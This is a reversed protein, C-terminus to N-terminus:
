SSSRVRLQLRDESRSRVAPMKQPWRHPCDVLLMVDEVWGAGDGFLKRRQLAVDLSSWGGTSMAVHAFPSGNAGPQPDMPEKAERNLLELSHSWRENGFGGEGHWLLVLPFPSGLIEKLLQGTTEQEPPFDALCVLGTDTEESRLRASFQRLDSPDIGPPCGIPWKECRLLGHEGNCARDWQRRLRNRFVPRAEARSLARMVFPEHAIAAFSQRIPHVSGHSSLSSALVEASLFIEMVVDLVSEVAEPPLAEQAMASWEELLSPFEIPTVGSAPELGEAQLPAYSDGDNAYFAEPILDYATGSQRLQILLYLTGVGSPSTSEQRGNTPVPVIGDRNLMEENIYKRVALLVDACLREKSQVKCPTRRLDGIEQKFRKLKERSEEDPEQIPNGDSGLSPPPYQLLFALIPINKQVARCYEHHTISRVIGRDDPESTGYRSGVLLIYVDCSEVDRLCRELVPRPSAVVSEVPLSEDKVLYEKILMREQELDLFTSSIYFKLIPHTSM